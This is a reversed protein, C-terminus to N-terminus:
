LTANDSHTNTHVQACTHTQTCVHTRMRARTHVHAHADWLKGVRTHVRLGVNGAAAGAQPDATQWDTRPRGIMDAATAGPLPHPM